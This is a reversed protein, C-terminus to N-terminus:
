KLIWGKSLAVTSTDCGNDACHDSWSTHVQMVLKILVFRKSMLLTACKCCLSFINWKWRREYRHSTQEEWLNQKLPGVEHEEINRDQGALALCGFKREMFLIILVSCAREHVSIPDPDAYEVGRMWFSLMPNQDTDMYLDTQMWSHWLCWSRMRCNKVTTNWGSTAELLWTHVAPKSQWGRPKM